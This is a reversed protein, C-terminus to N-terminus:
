VIQVAAHNVAVVTQFAQQFQARGVDDHAVFFAHQLFRHVAQQVVTATAFGHRAGVFAGQFRQGIHNFPFATAEALVQQTFAHIIRTAGHNGYARVQAQM